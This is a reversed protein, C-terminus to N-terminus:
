STIVTLVDPEGMTETFTKQADESLMLATVATVNYYTLQEDYDRAVLTGDESHTFSSCLLRLGQVGNVTCYLAIKMIVEEKNNYTTTLQNFSAIEYVDM